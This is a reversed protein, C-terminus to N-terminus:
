VTKTMFDSSFTAVSGVLALGIQVVDVAWPLHSAAHVPASQCDGRMALSPRVAALTTGRPAIVGWVKVHALLEDRPIRAVHVIWIRLTHPVVVVVVMVRQWM